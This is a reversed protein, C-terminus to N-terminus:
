PLTTSYSTSNLDYDWQNNVEDVETEIDLGFVSANDSTFNLISTLM